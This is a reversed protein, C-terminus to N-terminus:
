EYNFTVLAAGRSFIGYCGLQIRRLSPPKVASAAPKFFCESAGGQYFELTPLNGMAAGSQGRCLLPPHKPKSDPRLFLFKSM